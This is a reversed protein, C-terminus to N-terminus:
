FNIIAGYYDDSESTNTEAFSGPDHPLKWPNPMPKVFRIGIEHVPNETMDFADSPHKWMIQGLMQLPLQNQAIFVKVTVRQGVHVDISTELSLGQSSLDTCISSLDDKNQGLQAPLQVPFRPIRRKEFRETSIQEKFSAM